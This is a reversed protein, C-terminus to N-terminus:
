VFKQMSQLGIAIYHAPSLSIELLMGKISIFTSYESKRISNTTKFNHVPTYVYSPRSLIQKAFNSCFPCGFSLLLEAHLCFPHDIKDFFCFPCLILKSIRSQM